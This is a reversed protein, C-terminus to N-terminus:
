SITLIFLSFTHHCVGGQRVGSTLKSMRSHVNNWIVCTTCISFWYELVELLSVPIYRSMLKIFLGHHNMRDFAKTIDLACLNVTSGNSVYHNVINHVCYIAQLCSLSKKFIFQNDATTLFDNFRHLICHEFVKSVVPSISIGRYDQVTLNKNYNKNGKLLPVTYSIGFQTPVLGVHM